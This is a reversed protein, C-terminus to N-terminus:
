STTRAQLDTSREPARLQRRLSRTTVLHFTFKWTPLVSNVFTPDASYFLPLAGPRHPGIAQPASFEKRVQFYLM